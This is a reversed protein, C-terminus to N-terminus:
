SRDCKGIVNGKRIIHNLERVIGFALGQLKYELFVKRSGTRWLHQWILWLQKKCAAREKTIELTFLKLRKKSGQKGVSQHFNKCKCWLMAEICRPMTVNLWLQPIKLGALSFDLFSMNSFLFSPYNNIARGSFIGSHM